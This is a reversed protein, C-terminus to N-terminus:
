HVIMVPCPSSKILADSISGMLVGKFYSLGRAGMFLMSADTEIAVHTIVEYPMGERIESRVSTDDGMLASFHGRAEERREKVYRDRIEESVELGPRLPKVAHVLMLGAGSAGSIEKALGLAKLSHSSFDVACLINRVEPMGEPTYGPREGRVILLPVSLSKILRESSSARMLHSKYGLIVLDAGFLELVGHFTEILRGVEMKGTAKVGASILERTWKAIERELREAEKELHPQIYAPPTLGYDVVHIIRVEEAGTVGAFWRAYAIIRGTDPGLDVAVLIKKLKMARV